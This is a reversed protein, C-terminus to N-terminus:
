QSQKKVLVSSSGLTNRERIERLNKKSESERPRAREQQAMVNQLCFTGMRLRGEGGGRIFNNKKGGTRNNPIPTAGREERRQKLCKVCETGKENM